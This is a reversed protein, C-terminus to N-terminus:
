LSGKSFEWELGESCIVIVLVSCFFAVGEM